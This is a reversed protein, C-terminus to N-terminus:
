VARRGQQVVFIMIDNFMDEISAHDRGANSLDSVLELVSGIEIARHIRAVHSLGIISINRVDPNPHRPYKLCVDQAFYWDDHQSISLIAQVQEHVDGYLLDKYTKSSDLDRVGEYVLNEPDDIM